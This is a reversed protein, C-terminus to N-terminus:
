NCCAHVKKYKRWMYIIGSLVFLISVLFVYNQYTSFFVAIGSLGVIPLLSVFNHMCCAIMATTSVGGSAAVTVGGQKAKLHIARFFGMQIAFGLILPTVLYWKALFFYFPAYLSQMGLVQVVYFVTGIGIAGIIGWVIPSYNKKITPTATEINSRVAPIM